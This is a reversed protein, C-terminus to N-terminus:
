LAEQEASSFYLAKKMLVPIQTGATIYLIWLFLIIYFFNWKRTFHSNKVAKRHIQLHFLGYKMPEPPPVFLSFSCELNNKCSKWSTLGSEHTLAYSDLETCSPMFSPNWVSGSDKVYVYRGKVPSFFDYNSVAIRPEKLTTAYGDALHSIKLGYDDNCIYNYWSRYRQPTYLTFGDEGLVWDNEATKKM